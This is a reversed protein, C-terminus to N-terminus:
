LWGPCSFPASLHGRWEPLRGLRAEFGGLHMRQHLADVALMTLGEGIVGVQMRPADVVELVEPRQDPFQAPHDGLLAAVAHQRAGIGHGTRAPKGFCSEVEGLVQQASAVGFRRQDGAVLAAAAALQAMALEVLPDGPEALRQTVAADSGAIADGTEHGVALVRDDGHEGRGADARHPRGARRIEAEVAYEVAEALDLGLYQDGGIAVGPVALRDIGAIAKGPDALRDIREVLHHHKGEEVVFGVDAIDVLGDGPVVIEAVRGALDGELRLGEVVRQVDEIGGAGGARGLADDMGGTAAQELMELLLAQM